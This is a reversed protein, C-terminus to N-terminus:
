FDAGYKPYMETKNESHHILSPLPPPPTGHSAKYLTLRIQQRHIYLASAADSGDTRM